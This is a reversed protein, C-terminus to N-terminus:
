RAVFSNLLQKSTMGFTTKITRSLHASDSFGAKYAADTASAGHKIAQVACVLRRWLLYPRWAIGLEAKVLHLFRSESLGLTAAIDKARWQEPKVCEGNLCSDLKALLALLRRDQCQYPNYKLATILSQFGSLQQQLAELQADPAVRPLQSPLESIAEGLRSEPEALIIWGSPMVLQHMDNPKIVVGTLLPLGNLLSDQSPLCLQWLKHQHPRADISQGYAIVMGPSFYSVSQAASANVM